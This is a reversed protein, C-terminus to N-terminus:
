KDAPHSDRSIMRRSIRKILIKPYYWVQDCSLPDYTYLEDSEGARCICSSNWAAVQDDIVFFFFLRWLKAVALSLGVCLWCCWLRDVFNCPHPHPHITNHPQMMVLLTIIIIIDHSTSIRYSVYWNLTFHFRVKGCFTLTPTSEASCGCCNLCM